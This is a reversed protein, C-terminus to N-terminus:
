DCRRRSAALLADLQKADLREFDIHGDAYLINAGVGHNCLPEYAIIVRSDSLEAARKGQPQPWVFVYPEGGSPCVLQEPAIDGAEFLAQLAEEASAFPHGDADAAYVHLAAALGKLQAGCVRRRSLERAHRVLPVAVLVVVVVAFWWVWPRKM